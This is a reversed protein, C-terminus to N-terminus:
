CNNEPVNPAGVNNVPLKVSNELLESDVANPVRLTVLATGSGAVHAIISTPKPM